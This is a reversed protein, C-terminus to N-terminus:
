SRRAYHVHSRNREGATERGRERYIISVCYFCLNLTFLLFVASVNLGLQHVTSVNYFFLLSVTSFM